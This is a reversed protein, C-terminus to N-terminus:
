LEVNWICYVYWEINFTEAWIVWDKKEEVDRMIWKRINKVFLSENFICERRWSSHIVYHLIRSHMKYRVKHVIEFIYVLILSELSILSDFYKCNRKIRNKETKWKKKNIFPNVFISVLWHEVRKRKKSCKILRIYRVSMTNIYSHVVSALWIVNYLFRFINKWICKEDSFYSFFVCKSSLVNYHSFYICM